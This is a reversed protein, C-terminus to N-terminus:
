RRRSAADRGGEWTAVAATPAGPDCHLVGTINAGHRCYCRERTEIVETTHPKRAM